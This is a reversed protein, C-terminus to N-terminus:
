RHGRRRSHNNRFSHEGGRLILSFEGYGNHSRIWGRHRTDYRGDDFRDYVRGRRILNPHGRYSHDQYIPVDSFHNGRYGHNVHNAQASLSLSALLGFAVLAISRKLSRSHSRKYM